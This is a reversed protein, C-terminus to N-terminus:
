EAVTPESAKFEHLDDWYLSQQRLQEFLFRLAEVQMTVRQELPLTSPSEFTMVHDTHRHYMYVGQAFCTPVGDPDVLALGEEIEGESPMLGDETLVQTLAEASELAVRKAKLAKILSRGLLGRRGSLEYAYFGQTGSDEHLDLFLDYRRGQVAQQFLRIPEPPNDTGFLRNLDQGQDDERKGAAFGAPNMCPFCDIAVGSPVQLDELMRLMAEIGAPEDGHVGTALCIAYTKRGRPPISLRCFSSSGVCGLEDLQYTWNKRVAEKLRGELVTLRDGM